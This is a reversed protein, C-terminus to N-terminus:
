QVCPCPSSDILTSQSSKLLSCAHTNHLTSCQMHQPAPFNHCTQFCLTSTILMCWLGELPSRPKSVLLHLKFPWLYITFNPQSIFYKHSYSSPSAPHWHPGTGVCKM